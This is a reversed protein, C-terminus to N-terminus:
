WYWYCLLKLTLTSSRLPNSRLLPHITAQPTPSSLNCSSASPPVALSESFAFIEQVLIFFTSSSAGSTSYGHILMFSVYFWLAAEVKYLLLAQYFICLSRYLIAFLSTLSSFHLISPLPLTSTEEEEEGGEDTVAKAVAMVVGQTLSCEITISFALSHVHTCSFCVAFPQLFPHYCSSHSVARNPWFLPNSSFTVVRQLHRMRRVADNEAYWSGLGSPIRVLRVSPVCLCWRFVM